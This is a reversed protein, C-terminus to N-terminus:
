ENEDRYIRDRWNADDEIDKLIPQIKSHLQILDTEVRYLTEVLYRLVENTNQAAKANIRALLQDNEDLLSKVKSLNSNAKGFPKPPSHPM